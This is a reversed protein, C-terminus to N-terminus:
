NGKLILKLRKSYFLSKKTSYWIVMKVAQTITKFFSKISFTIQLIEWRDQTQSAAQPTAEVCLQVMVPPCKARQIWHHQQECSAEVDDRYHLRELATIFRIVQSFLASPLPPIILPTHTSSGSLGVSLCIRSCIIWMKSHSFLKILPCFMLLFNVAPFVSRQPSIQAQLRCLQM